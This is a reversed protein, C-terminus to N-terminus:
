TIRWKNANFIPVNGEICIGPQSRGYAVGLALCVLCLLLWARTNM